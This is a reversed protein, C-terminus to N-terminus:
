EYVPVEKQEHDRIASNTQLSQYVEALRQGVAEYGHFDVTFRRTRRSLEQREEPTSQIFNLIGHMLGDRTRPINILPLDRIYVGAKEARLFALESLHGITPIGAAMAEIASNGYWGIVDDIGLDAVRHRGAQDFCLSGKGKRTLCEEFSVNSIIDVSWNQWIDPYRKRLMMISEELLYTAKKEPSSPSHVISNSDSWSWPIAAVDIAHPIYHGAFWDFNLDPTMAIRADLQEVMSIYKRDSKFKRAYGGYHTFVKRAGTFANSFFMTDILDLNSHHPSRVFWTHEDKLHFIGAEEALDLVKQSRRDGCAPVVIDVPYHYQHFEFQILRVAFDTHRNLAEAWKYMSGAFDKPSVMLVRRHQPTRKWREQWGEVGKTVGGHPMPPWSWSFPNKLGQGHSVGGGPISDQRGRESARDLSAGNVGIPGRIMNLYLDKNRYINKILQPSRSFVHKALRKGLNRGGEYNSQLNWKFKGIMRGLVPWGAARSCPGEQKFFNGAMPIIQQDSSLLKKAIEFFEEHFVFFEKGTVELLDQIEPWQEDFWDHRPSGLGHGEAAGRKLALLGAQLVKNEPNVSLANEFFTLYRKIEKARYKPANYRFKKYIEKATWIPHHYGIQRGAKTKRRTFQTEREIRECFDLDMKFVDRFRFRDRIVRINLAWVGVPANEGNFIDFGRGTVLYHEELNLRNLLVQVACDKLLVDAALHVLIDAGKEYALDLCRNFAASAPTLGSVVEPEPIPIQQERIKQKCLDLTLEGTHTIACFVRNQAGTTM